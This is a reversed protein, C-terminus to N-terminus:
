AAIGRDSLTDMIDRPTLYALIRYPESGTDILFISESDVIQTTDSRRFTFRWITRVHAYRSDLWSEQMDVLESSQCGLSAFLEARKPLVRLFDAARVCQAGAPGAVLFTEAFQAALTPFDRRASHRAYAEVFQKLDSQKQDM